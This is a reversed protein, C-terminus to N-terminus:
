VHHARRDFAKHEASPLDVLFNFDPRHLVELGIAASMAELTAHPGFLRAAQDQLGACPM